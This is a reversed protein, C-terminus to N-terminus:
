ALLCWQMPWQMTHKVKAFYNYFIHHTEKLEVTFKESTPFFMVGEFYNSLFYNSKICNKPIEQTYVVLAPADGVGLSGARFCNSLQVLWCLNKFKV